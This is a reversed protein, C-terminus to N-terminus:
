VKGASPCLKSVVCEECLPNRAKCVQRGHEGIIHSFMVQKDDPVIIKLEAEIKDPVDTDVLGLRQTVRNLHTDTMIAPVGFCNGLVVNATKRGVGALATLENMTKPVEGGHKEVLAKSCNIVSKTKNRYFNISGLEKELVEPNANAFDAPSKYKKYLEDMVMNVRDDTCQAALITSILLQFPAKYNLHCAANPYQASLLEIIKSVRKKKQDQSERM